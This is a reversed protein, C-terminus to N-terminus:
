LSSPPRSLVAPTLLMVHFLTHMTCSSSHQQQLVVGARALPWQQLAAVPLGCAKWTHLAFWWRM